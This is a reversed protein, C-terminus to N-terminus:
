NFHRTKFLNIDVISDFMHRQKVHVSQMVIWYLSMKLDFSFNFLIIWAEFCAIANRHTDPQQRYTVLCKKYSEVWLNLVMSIILGNIYPGDRQITPIALFNPDGWTITELYQSEMMVLHWKCNWVNPYLLEPIWFKFNLFIINDHSYVINGFLISFGTLLSYQELLTYEYIYKIRLKWFWGPRASWVSQVM